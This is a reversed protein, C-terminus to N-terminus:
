QNAHQFSRHGCDVIQDDEFLTKIQFLFPNCHQLNVNVVDPTSPCGQDTTIKELLNIGQIELDTTKGGGGLLIDRILMKHQAPSAQNHQNIM